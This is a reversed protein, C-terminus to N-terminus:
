LEDFDDFAYAVALVCGGAGSGLDWFSGRPRGGCFSVILRTLDLADLEGYTLAAGGGKEAVRYARTGACQRAVKVLAVARERRQTLAHASM